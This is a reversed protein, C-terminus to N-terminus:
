SSATPTALPISKSPPPTNGQKKGNGFDKFIGVKAIQRCLSEPVDARTAQDTYCRCQSASAMCVSPFPAADVKTVEDYRPATYALGAVRPAYSALPDPKRGPQIVGSSSTKGASVLQPPTKKTDFWSAVAWVCAGLLIPLALLFILRPPIRRKVTHLEASKYWNYSEVPYKFDHRISDARSKDCQDKVEAWEHVTSRAMGFARVVHMHRGVLRRVNTDLLMPHQTILVIDIGSHRHTELKEVHIPVASGNGRPRFVRQCEDVVVVSGAPLTHWQDGSDMEIWPLRLDNIGSYYVARNAFEPRQQVYNLAYLTKGAGPQGTILHIM